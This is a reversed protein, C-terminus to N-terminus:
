RVLWRVLGWWGRLVGDLLRAGSSELSPTLTLPGGVLLDRDRTVRTRQTARRARLSRPLDKLFAGKGRLWAGLGGQKLTFAFWALEYVCLGPLALLLTSWRSCKCLYMWRNRSHYYVRSSPYNTGERFSIGPTGADHLVVPTPVRLLTKGAIRLRHSLDLDEFLIFYREDYGGLELLAHRDVLCCLSVFCDMEQPADGDDGARVDELPQYWHELSILGAYHLRGGDYHVRTPETAFVSRPQAVAVGPRSAVAAQLADLLEPPVVVDNDLALVWRNRAAQMGVNRARAPGGNEGVQVVRAEPFSEEVLAVSGDTSANDVVLVEDLDLARLSALCDSLYGAGNWNVVIASVPPRAPAEM